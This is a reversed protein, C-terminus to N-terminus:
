IVNPAYTFQQRHSFISDEIEQERKQTGLILEGISSTSIHRVGQADCRVIELGGIAGRGLYGASLIIHAALPILEDISRRSEHWSSYYRESWFIAANVTDGGVAVPNKSQCRVSPGMLGAHVQFLKYESEQDSKAIRAAVTCQFERRRESAAKLVARAIAEARNEPWEWDDPEMELLLKEAVAFALELNRACAIAVGREKDVKLKTSHDSHRTSAWQSSQGNQWLTDSALVIGNTAVMGVQMTM